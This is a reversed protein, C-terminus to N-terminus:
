RAQHQCTSKTATVRSCKWLHQNPHFGPRRREWPSTLPWARIKPCPEELPQLPWSAEGFLLRVTGVAICHQFKLEFGAFPVLRM